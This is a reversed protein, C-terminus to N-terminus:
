PRAAAAPVAAAAPKEVETPTRFAALWNEIQVQVPQTQRVLFVRGVPDYIAAAEGSTWSAPEVQQKLRSLLQEAAAADPALDNISYTELDFRKANAEATTIEFTKADRTRLVLSLSELLRALTTDLPEEQRASLTAKSDASLGVASLAVGDVLLIVDGKRELYALIKRLPEDQFNATVPRALSALGRSVRTESPWRAATEAPVNLRRAMRLRALLEAIDAHTGIHQEVVLTSGDVTLSTEPDTKWSTPGALQKIWATLRELEAKPEIVGAAQVLDAVDYREERLFGERASLSAIVIRGESEFFALGHQQLAEDLVEGVTSNESRLSVVDAPTVGADTLSALDFTMPITSARSLFDVLGNLPTDNIVLEPIPDALRAAIDLPPKEPVAAPMAEPVIEAAPKRLSLIPRRKPQETAAMDGPVGAFINDGFLRNRVPPLPAGLDSDGQPQPNPQAEVVEPPPNVPPPAAEPMEPRVVPQVEPVTPPPKDETPEAEPSAPEVADAPEEPKPKPPAPNEVIEIPPDSPAFATFAWYLGASLLLALSTGVLALVKWVPVAPREVPATIGDPHAFDGSTGPSGAPASLDPTAFDTGSAPAVPKARGGAKGSKVDSTAPAPEGEAPAPILVMSGCKPCNVLQGIAKRSRVKLRSGCTECAITFADM